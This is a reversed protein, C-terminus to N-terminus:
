HSRFVPLDPLSLVAIVHNIGEAEIQDGDRNYQQSADGFATEGAALACQSNGQQRQDNIRALSCADHQWDETAHIDEANM